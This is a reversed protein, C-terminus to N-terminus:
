RPRARLARSRQTHVRGATVVIVAALLSKVLAGSLFPAVGTWYAGAGGLGIALRLWGCSLIIAHGILMTVLGSAYTRDRDGRRRSAVYHAAAVFGLLYGGTPGLLHRWGADGGAFVPFGLAGAAVYAAVAFVGDLGPLLRGVLLVALTQGSQPVTTGPVPVDFRAAVAIAVVGLLIWALRTM